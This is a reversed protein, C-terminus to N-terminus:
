QKRFKSLAESVIRDIHVVIARTQGECVKEVEALAEVLGDRDKRISEFADRLHFLDAQLQDREMEVTVVRSCIYDICKDEM